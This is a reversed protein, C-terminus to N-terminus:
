WTAAEGMTWSVVGPSLKNPIIRYLRYSAFTPDIFSAFLPSTLDLRNVVISLDIWPRKCFGSPLLMLYYSSNCFQQVLCSRRRANGVGVHMGETSMCEWTTPFLFWLWVGTLHFLRRFMRMAVSAWTLVAKAYSGDNFRGLPIYPILDIADSISWCTKTLV